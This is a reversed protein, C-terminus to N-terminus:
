ILGGLWGGLCVPTPFSQKHLYKWVDDDQVQYDTDTVKGISYWGIVIHILSLIDSFNSIVMTQFKGSLLKSGEPKICVAYENTPPHSM